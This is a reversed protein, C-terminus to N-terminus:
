SGSRRIHVHFAFTVMHMGFADREGHHVHGVVSPDPAHFARFSFSLCGSWSSSELGEDVLPVHSTNCMCANAYQLHIRGRGQLMQEKQFSTTGEDYKPVILDGERCRSRMDEHLMSVSFLIKM